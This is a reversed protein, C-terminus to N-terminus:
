LSGETEKLAKLERGTVAIVGASTRYEVDRGESDKCKKTHPISMYFTDDLHQEINFEEGWDIKM